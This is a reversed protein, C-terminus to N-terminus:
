IKQKEQILRHLFPRLFFLIVSGIIAGIALKLFAAAFTPNTILPNTITTTGLAMKSFYNSLVAALGSVMLWAGMALSQLRSPILQGIMAFGIPSIFLEGISQFLYYSIYWNISSIGNSDALQIGLYLLIYGFGILFLATTFQFPISIKYGITRLKRNVAAMIPGGLVIILTNINLTWQPPITFGLFLHDVNHVYFLTLGMPTMQYLTWFILSSISLIIFAWLKKSSEEKPEKWALYAFLSAIVVGVLCILANSINAHSLLWILALILILILFYAYVRRRQKKTSQSYFTGKDSLYKWNVLTLVFSILSGFSAFIFLDHFNHDLQFYGSVSFGIFFGLNMSSYNWLFASERRKDHANFLQTLMCNICIVNLGCGSLFIATGLLLMPLNPFSIIFSGFAQLLMGTIFLGRYSLYRGGIYGGMLHLTYNFAIFGGTLGVAYHSTLHLGQTAYLVLTSYLVSFGLTSFLQMLILARLGRRTQIDHTM